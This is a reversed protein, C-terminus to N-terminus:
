IKDFGDGAAVCGGSVRLTEFAGRRGIPAVGAGNTEIGGSTEYWRDYLIVSPILRQEARRRGGVRRAIGVAWITPLTL